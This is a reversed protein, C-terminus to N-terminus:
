LRNDLPSQNAMPSRRQMSCVTSFSAASIWLACKLSLLAPSANRCNFRSTLRPQRLSRVSETEFVGEPPGGSSEPWDLASPAGQYSRRSTKSTARVSVAVDGTPYRQHIEQAYGSIKKALSRLEKARKGKASKARGEDTEFVRMCIATIGVVSVIAAVWSLSSRIEPISNM